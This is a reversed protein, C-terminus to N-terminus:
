RFILNKALYVQAPSLEMVVSPLWLTLSSNDTIEKDIGVRKALRVFTSDEPDNVIQEWLGSKFGGPYDRFHADKKCSTSFILFVCFLSYTLITIRHKWFRDRCNAPFRNTKNKMFQYM